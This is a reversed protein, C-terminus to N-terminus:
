KPIAELNSHSVSLLPCSTFSVELNELLVAATEAVGKIFVGVIPVMGGLGKVINAIQISAPVIRSIRHPKNSEDRSTTPLNMSAPLSTLLRGSWVADRRLFAM